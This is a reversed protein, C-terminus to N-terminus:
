DEGELWPVCWEFFPSSAFKVHFRRSDRQSLMKGPNEQPRPSHGRNRGLEVNASDLRDKMLRASGPDGSPSRSVQFGLLFSAQQLELIYFTAYYPVKPMTRASSELTCM